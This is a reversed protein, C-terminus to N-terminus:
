TGPQRKGGDLDMPWDAQCVPCGPRRPDESRPRAKEGEGKRRSWPPTKRKEEIM